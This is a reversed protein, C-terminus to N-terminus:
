RSDTNRALMRSIVQHYLSGEGFSSLEKFVDEISIFSMLPNDIKAAKPGFFFLNTNPGNFELLIEMKRKIEYKDREFTM